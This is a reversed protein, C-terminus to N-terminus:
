TEFIFLQGLAGCSAYLSIDKLVQPHYKIFDLAAYIEPESSSTKGLMPIAPIGVIMASATVVSSALNMWFMMQTGNIKFKSFLADQSSNVLGDIVLNALLLSLGFSSDTTASVKSTKKLLTFMSIGTTVLLVVAYKYPAFKRRYILVNMLMVKSHISM